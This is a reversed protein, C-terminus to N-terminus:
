TFVSFAKQPIPLSLRRPLLLGNYRGGQCLSEHEWLAKECALLGNFCYNDSVHGDALISELFCSVLNNMQRYIPNFARLLKYDSLMAVM